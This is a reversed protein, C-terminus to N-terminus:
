LEFYYLYVEELTLEKRCVDFGEPCKEGVIRFVLGDNRQLVNGCSYEKQLESLEAKSCKREFVKGSVSEILGASTDDKILRGNKMLIIRDAICEIDSVVHTVLIVIKDAAMESIFSRIRIREKPDLGATPEDLILLTLAAACLLFRFSTGKADALLSSYKRENVFWIETGKQEHQQQLYNYQETLMEFGKYKGRMILDLSRFRADEETTRNEKIQLELYENQLEAFRDREQEIFKKKELTLKGELQELYAYYTADPISDYRYSIKENTVQVALILLVAIVVYGKDHIMRKYLEHRFVGTTGRIPLFWRKLKEVLAALMGKAAIQSRFSFVAIVVVASIVILAVSLVLFLHVTSIDYYIELAFDLKEYKKM